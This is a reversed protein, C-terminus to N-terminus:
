LGPGLQCCMLLELGYLWNTNSQYFGQMLPADAPCSAWGARDFTASININRCSQATGAPAPPGAPGQPGMPGVPGTAGAIGSAGQAGAAGPAGTPGAPGADGQPGQPGVPGAIGRDGQPGQAGPLGVEGRLGSPGRPGTVGQPGPDGITLDFQDFSGTELKPKGKKDLALVMLRYSGPSTAPDFGAPLQAVIHGTTSVPLVDLPWGNFTALVTGFNMGDITITRDAPDIRTALITLDGAAPAQAGLQAGMGAVVAALMVGAPVVRRAPFPHRM